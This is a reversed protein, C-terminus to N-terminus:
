WVHGYKRKSAVQWVICWMYWWTVIIFLCCFLCFSHVVWIYIYLYRMYIHCLGHRVNWGQHRHMLVRQKYTEKHCVCSLHYLRLGDLGSCVHNSITSSMKFPMQNQRFVTNSVNYNRQTWNIIFWCWRLSHSPVNCDDLWQRFCYHHLYTIQQTNNTPHCHTLGECTAPGYIGYYDRVKSPRLGSSAQFASTM